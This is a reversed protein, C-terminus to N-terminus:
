FVWFVGPCQLLRLTRSALPSILHNPIALPVSTALVFLAAAHNTFIVRLSQLTHVYAAGDQARQAVEGLQSKLAGLSGFMGAASLLVVVEYCKLSRQFYSGFCLLVIAIYAQLYLQQKVVHKHVFEVVPKLVTVKSLLQELKQGRKSVSAGVKAAAQAAKKKKPSSRRRLAGFDATATASAAREEKIWADDEMTPKVTPTVSRATPATPGATKTEAEVAPEPAREDKEEEEEAAASESKLEPESEPEAVNEVPTATPVDAVNEDLTAM